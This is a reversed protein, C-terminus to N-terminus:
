FNCYASLGRPKAVLKSSLNNLIKRKDAKSARGSYLWTFKHSGCDKLKEGDLLSTWVALYNHLVCCIKRTMVSANAAKM